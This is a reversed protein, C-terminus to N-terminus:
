GLDGSIWIWPCIVPYQKYMGCADPLLGGKGYEGFHGVEYWILHYVIPYKTINLGEEFSGPMVRLLLCSILIFLDNNGEMLAISTNRNSSLSSLSHRSTRNITECLEWKNELEGWNSRKLTTERSSAWSPFLDPCCHWPSVAKEKIRSRMNVM